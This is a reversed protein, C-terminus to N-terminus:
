TTWPEFKYKIILFEYTDLLKSIKDLFLMETSDDFILEDIKLLDEWDAIFYDFIIKWSWIQVLGKWLHQM